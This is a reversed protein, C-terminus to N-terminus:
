ESNKVPPLDLEDDLLVDTSIGAFRAYRLVIALSPTRSEREWSSVRSRRAVGTKGLIVAMEDLTLGARQRITRLKEGLRKIEIENLPRTESPM